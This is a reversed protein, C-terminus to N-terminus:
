KLLFATKGKSTISIIYIKMMSKYILVGSIENYLEKEIYVFNDDNKEENLAGNKRAGEVMAKLEDFRLTGIISFMFERDTLQKQEYDPFYNMLEEEEKLYGSTRLM